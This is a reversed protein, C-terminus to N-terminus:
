RTASVRVNELAIGPGTTPQTGDPCYKTTKPVVFKTGANADICFNESYTAIGSAAATAVEKEVQKDEHDSNGSSAYGYSSLTNFIMAGTFTYAGVQFATSARSAQESLTQRTAIKSDVDRQYNRSNKKKTAKDTLYGVGEKIWKLPGAHASQGLLFSSALAVIVVKRSIM